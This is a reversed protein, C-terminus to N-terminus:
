VFLSPTTELRHCHKGYSYLLGYFEDNSPANQKSNVVVALSQHRLRFSCNFGTRGNTNIHRKKEICNLYQFKTANFNVGQERCVSALEERNQVCVLFNWVTGNKAIYQKTCRDVRFGLFEFM